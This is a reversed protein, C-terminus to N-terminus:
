EDNSSGDANEAPQAQVSPVGTHDLLTWDGDALVAPAITEPKFGARYLTEMTVAQKQLIDAEDKEDDRLFAVDHTDFWLEADPPPPVITELSGAANRWLPRFTGDGVKRKIVAYNGANLSSGMLGESFGAVVATLGAAAALRTEGAGVVAKYDMQQFDKGIVEADAGGGIYLTGHANSAGRHAEEFKEIWEEMQEVTKTFAPDFKVKMNPTAANDWFATKHKTAQTDAQIERIVPTLWSMGRYTARPDPFPAFHAVEDPLLIVPDNGSAIGGETYTYGGLRKGLVGPRGNATVGAPRDQLTITVWDPRLRVLEGDVDALFANGCLDADLIMATALDGTTGNPWPRRLRDMAPTSFLRGGRGNRLQRFMFRIEAFISMRLMELTWVISNGQLAHATLGDISNPIGEADSGVMTTRLGVPFMGGGGSITYWKALDNWTFRQEFDRAVRRRQLLTTM